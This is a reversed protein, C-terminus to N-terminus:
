ATCWGRCEHARASGASRTACVVSGEVAIGRGGCERVVVQADEERFDDRWVPRPAPSSSAKVKAATPRSRRMVATSPVPACACVDLGLTQITRSSHLFSTLDPTRFETHAGLHLSRLNPLDALLDFTKDVVTNGQLKLTALSTPFSLPSTLPRPFVSPAQERMSAAYAFVDSFGKMAKVDDPTGCKYLSTSLSFSTLGPALAQFLHRLDPRVHTCNTLDFSELRLSRPPLHTTGLNLTTVPMHRDFGHLALVRLHALRSVNRGFSPLIDDGDHVTVLMHTFRPYHPDAVLHPAVLASALKAGNVVLIVLNPMRLVLDSFLGTGITIDDEGSGGAPLWDLQGSGLGPGAADCDREDPQPETYHVAHTFTVTTVLQALEPHHRLTRVFAKVQNPTDLSIMTYVAHLFYDYLVRCLLLTGADAEGIDAFIRRLISPPLRVLRNSKPQKTRKVKLPKVPESLSM